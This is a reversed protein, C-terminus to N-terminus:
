IFLLFIVTFILSLFWPANVVFLSGLREPYHNQLVHLSNQAVVRGNPSHTGKGYESFDIVWTLKEVEEEMDQISSELVWVLYKIRQEASYPNYAGPKIYVVPRSFKDHGNRYLGGLDFIGKMSEATIEHPRFSKRWTLTEFLMKSSKDLNWDRARLYRLLCKDDLQTKFDFLNKFFFIQAFFTPVM